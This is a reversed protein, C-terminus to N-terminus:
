AAKGTMIEVSRADLVERYKAEGHKSIFSEIEASTWKDVSKSQAGPKGGSEGGAGGGSAQTGKFLYAKSDRYSSIADKLPKSPDAKWFPAGKDDLDFDEAHLKWFADTDIVDAEGAASKVKGDLKLGRAERQAKELQEMVPKLYKEDWEKKADTLGKSALEAEDQKRKAEAEIERARKEAEEREKRAAKLSNKLGTVDEVETDLYFKGDKEIYAGRAKEPVSDLSDTSLPLPM